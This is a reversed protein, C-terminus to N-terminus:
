NYATPVALHYARLPSHPQKVPSDLSFIMLFTKLTVLIRKASCKQQDWKQFPLLKHNSLMPQLFITAAITESLKEM